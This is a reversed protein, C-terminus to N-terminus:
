RAIGAAPPIHSADDDQATDATLSVELVVVTLGKRTCLLVRECVQLMITFGMGLTATTSFGPVLTARPLTRFDIGPGSDTVAVQLRTPTALVQYMGGGAHKLANNWAECVANLLGTDAAAGPFRRAISKLLSRRAGAVDAPSTLFGPKGLPQGLEGPLEGEALLILKGGTVADIVDVYAQRISEEQVRLAREARKRETIDMSVGIARRPGASPDAVVQGQWRIWREAGDPRVIRFEAEYPRGDGIAAAFQGRVHALDEPHVHEWWFAALDGQFAAPIGWIEALESTWEGRGTELDVEFAGIRGIQLALRQRHESTALKVRAEQLDEVMRLLAASKEQLYSRSKELEELRQQLEPYYSKRLSREGLGIIKDRLSSWGAELDSPANM